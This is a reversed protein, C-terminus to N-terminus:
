HPQLTIGLSDLEERLITPFGSASQLKTIVLQAVKEAEERNVFGDNGPEGPINVQHIMRKNGNYIDYGIGHLAGTSDINEFLQYSYFETPPPPPPPVPLANDAPTSSEGCGFILLGFILLLLPRFMAM